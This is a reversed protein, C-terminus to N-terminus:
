QEHVLLHVSTVKTQVPQVIQPTLSWCPCSIEKGKMIDLGASLSV